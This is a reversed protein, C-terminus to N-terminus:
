KYEVRLLVYYSLPCKSHKVIPKNVLTLVTINQRPLSLITQHQLIDIPRPQVCDHQVSDLLPDTGVAIPVKRLAVQALFMDSRQMKTLRSWLAAATSLEDPFSAQCLVHLRGAM